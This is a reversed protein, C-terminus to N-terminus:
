AIIAHDDQFTRDGFLEIFEDTCNQIYDIAHPRQPHRGSAVREWAKLQSYVNKKLLELKKEMKFLEDQTWLPNNKNQEKLQHITQQVELIQKEHALVTM